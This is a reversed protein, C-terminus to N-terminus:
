THSMPIHAVANNAAELGLNVEVARYLIFYKFLNKLQEQGKQEDHIDLFQCSGGIVCLKKFETDLTKKALDKKSGELKDNLVYFSHM